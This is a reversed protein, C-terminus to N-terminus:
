ISDQTHESDAELKSRLKEEIDALTHFFCKTLELYCNSTDPNSAYKAKLNNITQYFNM